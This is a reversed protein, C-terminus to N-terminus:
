YSLKKICNERIQWIEKFSNQINNDKIWNKMYNKHFDIKYQIVQEPLISEEYLIDNELLSIDADQHTYDKRKNHITLYCHAEPIYKLHNKTLENKIKPTNIHNMKYIGLKLDVHHLENFIAIDKLFAHKSSCTGKNEKIVLSFDIRNSNRGYPIQSVYDTLQEWTHINKSLLINKINNHFLINM